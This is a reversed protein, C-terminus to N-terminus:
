SIWVGRVMAKGIRVFKLTTKSTGAIMMVPVTTGAMATVVVMTMTTIRTMPAILAMTRM